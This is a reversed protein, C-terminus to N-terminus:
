YMWKIINSSKKTKELIGKKKNWKLRLAPDIIGKHKHKIIKKKNQNETIEKGHMCDPKHLHHSDNRKM